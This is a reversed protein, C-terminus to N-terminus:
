SVLYTWRQAQMSPKISGFAEKRGSQWLKGPRFICLKCSQKGQWSRMQMAEGEGRRGKTEENVM